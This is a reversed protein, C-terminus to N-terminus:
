TVRLVAKGAVSQANHALDKGYVHIYYTGKFAPRVQLADVVLRRTKRLGVLLAKQM